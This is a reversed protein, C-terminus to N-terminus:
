RGDPTGGRAIFDRIGARSFRLQGESLKVVFPLTAAHRYLWDKKTGLTEAAQDPTLLQFDESTNEQRSRLRLEARATCEALKGILAPLGAEPTGDVLNALADADPSSPAQM